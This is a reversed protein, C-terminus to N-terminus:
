RTRAAPMKGKAANLAALAEDLDTDSLGGLHWALRRLKEGRHLIGEPDGHFPHDPMGDAAIVLRAQDVVSLRYWWHRLTDWLTIESSGIAGNSSCSEGGNHLDIGSDAVM